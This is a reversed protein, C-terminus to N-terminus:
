FDGAGVFAAAIAFGNEKDMKFEGHKLENEVYKEQIVYNSREVLVILQTIAYTLVLTGLLITAFGGTCTKFKVNGDPLSFKFHNKSLDAISM